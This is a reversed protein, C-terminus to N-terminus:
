LPTYVLWTFNWNRKMVINPEIWKILLKWDEYRFGKAISIFGDKRIIPGFPLFITWCLLGWLFIAWSSRHLESIFIHGTHNLTRILLPKIEDNTLHYLVNSFVVIDFQELPEFDFMSQNLFRINGFSSKVDNAAKIALPNTDIGILEVDINYQKAIRAIARLKSGDGCGVDLIRLQKSEPNRKFFIKLYNFTPRYTGMLWSAMSLNRYVKKVQEIGLQASKDM